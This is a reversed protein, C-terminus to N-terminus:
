RSSVAYLRTTSIYIINIDPDNLIEDVDTTWHKIGHRRAFGTAKEANRRMIMKVESHETKYMGPVSKWKAFM